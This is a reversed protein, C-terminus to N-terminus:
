RRRHDKRGRGREPPPPPPESPESPRPPAPPPPAEGPRPERNPGRPRPPTPPEETGQARWGDRKGAGNPRRDGHPKRGGRNFEKRDFPRQGAASQPRERRWGQNKQSQIKDGHPKERPTRDRWGSGPPGSPGGRRVDTERPARDRDRWNSRPPRDRWDGQPSRDTRPTFSKPRLKDGHPKERPTRDRWDSGPPGSPGGRRVNTERPARDRDRWDSRPAGATAGQRGQQDGSPRRGGEKRAFRDARRELNRAKKADKYKQRPDRHEGGPRWDRGRGEPRKGAAGQRSSGERREGRDHGERTGKERAEEPSAWLKGRAFWKMEADPHKERIRQFTPLLDERDTARFATPLGGALITWYAYRPPM